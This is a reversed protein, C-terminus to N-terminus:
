DHQMAGSVFWGALLGGLLWGSGLWAGTASLSGTSIYEIGMRVVGALLATVVVSLAVQALNGPPAAQRVTGLQSWILLSTVCSGVVVGLVLSIWDMCTNEM